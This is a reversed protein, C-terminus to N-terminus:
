TPTYGIKLCLWIEMQVNLKSLAVLRVKEFLDLCSNTKTPIRARKSLIGLPARYDNKGATLSIRYRQVSDTAFIDRPLLKNTSTAYQEVDFNKLGADFERM